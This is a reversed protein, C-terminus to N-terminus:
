MKRYTITTNGSRLVLTSSNLTVVDFTCDTSYFGWPAIVALDADDTMLQDYNSEETYKSRYTFSYFRITNGEHEFRGFYERPGSDEGLMFLHLQFSCYLRDAKTDRVDDGQQISMLQWLGDLDGNIPVKDCSTLLLLLVLLSINLLTKM